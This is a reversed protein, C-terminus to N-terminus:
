QRTVSPTIQRFLQSSRPLHSQRRVVFTNTTRRPSEFVQAPYCGVDAVLDKLPWVFIILGYIFLKRGLQPLYKSLPSTNRLTWRRRM